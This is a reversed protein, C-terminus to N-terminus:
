PLDSHRRLFDLAIPRLRDQESRPLDRFSVIERRCIPAGCQCPISWSPENMCTSYDFVLEAGVAIDRLAYLDVSGKLFGLNPDCAHNILDDVHLHIGDEALYTDPGIQMVRMRDHTIEDRRIVKGRVTV